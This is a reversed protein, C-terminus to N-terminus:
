NNAVEFKSNLVEGDMTVVRAVYLGTNWASVDITASKAAVTARTMLQGSINYIEYSEVENGYGNLYLNVVNNTPNPFVRLDANSVTKEEDAAPIHIAIAMETDGLSYTGGAANMIGTGSLSFPLMLYAEEGPRTDVLDEVIIFDVQAIMGYGDISVGNTRTFGFDIKGNEPFDYSMGLTPADYAMWTDTPFTINMSGPQVFSPDYNLSSTIGHIDLAYETYDLSDGLYVEFSVVDGPQPATTNNYKLYIPLAAPPEPTPIINNIAGYYQRIATTDFHSIISDGDTDIHKLDFGPQEFPDNWNAAYQGYWDTTVTEAYRETGEEGMCLGIPLVDKMNVIGDKNTDGPYVCNDGICLQETDPVVNLVNVVVKVTALTNNNGDVSYTVEFEDEGTFGANPTYSILNHGSTSQGNWTQITYGAHVEATGNAAGTGVLEFSYSNIPVGYELILPVNKVANLNFLPQSPVQNHVHVTVTATELIGAVYGRYKFEDTGIFGSAPVYQYNIQGNIAIPTVSGHEANAAIIYTSPVLKDNAAVDITVMSGESTYAHDDLLYTNSVPTDLVHVRVVRTYLMGNEFKEYTVFDYGSSAGTPEYTPVEQEMDFGVTGHAWNEELLTYGTLDFLVIKPVDISTIIKLTDNQPEVTPNVSINVIADDCNGEDDCITYNFHAIGTFSADPTFTVSGCDAGITCYGIGSNVLTVGEVHPDGTGLWDDNALVDVVISEGSTVRAFDDVAKIYAPIVNIQIHAEILQGFPFAEEYYRVIVEDEGVFDANPTYVLQYDGVYGGDPYDLYASGNNPQENMTAYFNTNYFDWTLVENRIVDLEVLQTQAPQAFALMPLFLLVSLSYLIKRIQIHTNM